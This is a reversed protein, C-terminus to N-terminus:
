NRVRDTSSSGGLLKLKLLIQCIYGILKELFGFMLIIM